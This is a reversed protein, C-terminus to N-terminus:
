VRWRYCAKQRNAGADLPYDEPVDLTAVLQAGLRELTRRSAVNDPQCTIWLSEMEHWRALPVILRCAREAFHNGRYSPEVLYGVQGAFKIVDENWGVRLRIRGLYARTATHRMEFTYMPVGFGSADAEVCESLVLTLDGDPSLPDRFFEFAM